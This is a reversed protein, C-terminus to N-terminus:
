RSIWGRIRALLLVELLPFGHGLSLQEVEVAFDSEDGTGATADTFGDGFQKGLLAGMHDDRAALEFAALVDGVGDGGGAALGCGHGAVDTLHLLDALDEGPDLFM